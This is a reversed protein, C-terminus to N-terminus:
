LIRALGHGYGDYRQHRRRAALGDSQANGAQSPLARYMGDESCSVFEPPIRNNVSGQEANTRRNIAVRLRQEHYQSHNM